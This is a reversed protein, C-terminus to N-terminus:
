HVEAVPHGEDGTARSDRPLVPNAARNSSENGQTSRFFALIDDLKKDQATFKAQITAMENKLETVQSAYTMEDDDATGSLFGRGDGIENAGRTSAAALNGTLAPAPTPPSGTTIPQTADKQATATNRRTGFTSLSAADTIDYMGQQHPRTPAGATPNNVKLASLDFWPTSEDDQLGENLDTTILSIPRNNKADWQLESYKSRAETTFLTYVRDGIKNAFYKGMALLRDMAAEEYLKPYTLLFGGGERFTRDVSIFINTTGGKGDPVKEEMLLERITFKGNDTTIPVDADSFDSTNVTDLCDQIFGHNQISQKLKEHDHATFQGKKYTPILRLPHGYIKTIWPSTLLRRLLRKAVDEKNKRTEVHVARPNPNRQGKALRTGPPIKKNRLGIEIFHSTKSYHEGKDEKEKKYLDNIGQQLQTTWWELDWHDLSGKLHGLDAAHAAQLAKKYQQIDLDQLITRTDAQVESFDRTLRIKASFWIQGGGPRARARHLYRLIGNVSAPLSTAKTLPPLTSDEYGLIAFKTDAEQLTTFWKSLQQRMEESAQKSAKVTIKADIYVSYPEHENTRAETRDDDDDANAMDVDPRRGNLLEPLTAQTRATAPPPPPPTGEPPTPSPAPLPPALEMTDDPDDQQRHESRHAPKSPSPTVPTRNNGHNTKPDHKAKATSKSASTAALAAKRAAATSRAM